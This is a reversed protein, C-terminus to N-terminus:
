GVRKEEQEQEEAESHKKDRIVLHPTKLAKKNPDELQMGIFQLGFRAASVRANEQANEDGAIDTLTKTFILAGRQLDAEAAMRVAKGEEERQTCLTEWYEIVQKDGRLLENIYPVSFHCAESIDKKSYKGTIYMEVMLRHQPTLEKLARSGDRFEIVGVKPRKTRRYERTLEIDKLKIIKGRPKKM